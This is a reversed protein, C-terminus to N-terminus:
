STSRGGRAGVLGDWLRVSLGDERALKTQLDSWNAEGGHRELYKWIEGAMEGIRSEDIRANSPPPISRPRTTRSAISACETGSRAYRNLWVEASKSQPRASSRLTGTTEPSVLNKGNNKSSAREPAPKSLVLIDKQRGHMRRGIALYGLSFNPCEKAAQWGWPLQYGVWLPSRLPELDKWFPVPAGWSIPWCCEWFSPAPRVPQPRVTVKEDLLTVALCVAVLPQLYIFIRSGPPSSGVCPLPTSCIPAPVDPELVIYALLAWIAPSAPAVFWPGALAYPM